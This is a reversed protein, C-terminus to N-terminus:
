LNERWAWKRAPPCAAYPLCLHICCIVRKLFWVDLLGALLQPRFASSGGNQVLGPTQSVVMTMGVEGVATEAGEVSEGVPRAGKSREM